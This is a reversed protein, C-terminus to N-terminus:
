SSNPTDSHPATNNSIAERDEGGGGGGGGGWLQCFNQVHYITDRTKLKREKKALPRQFDNRTRGLYQEAIALYKEINRSIELGAVTDKDMSTGSDSM